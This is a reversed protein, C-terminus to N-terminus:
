KGQWDHYHDLQELYDRDSSYLPEDVPDPDRAEPIMDADVEPKEGRLDDDM